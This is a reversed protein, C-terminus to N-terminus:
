FAKGGHMHPRTANYEIKALLAEAVRLGHRGAFDMIRVITDALEVETGSFEPCNKDPPDGIRQAELAESLESHMLAIKTGVANNEPGEWFGHSLAHTHARTQIRNFAEAFVADTLEDAM